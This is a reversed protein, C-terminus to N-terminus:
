IMVQKYMTFASSSYLPSLSLFYHFCVLMELLELMLQQHVLLFDSDLVVLQLELVLQQHVVLFESDLMVLQLELVVLQLELEQVLILEFHLV